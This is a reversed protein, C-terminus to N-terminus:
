RRSGALRGLWGGLRAGHHPCPFTLTRVSFFTPSPFPPPPSPPSLPHPILEPFEFEGSGPVSFASAVGTKKDGGGGEVGPNSVETLVGADLGINLIILEVLGRTNMLVGVAVSERVTMGFFRAM